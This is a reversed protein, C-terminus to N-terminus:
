DIIRGDHRLAILTDLDIQEVKSEIRFTRITYGRIYAWEAIHENLESFLTNGTYYFMFERLESTSNDVMRGVIVFYRKNRWQMHGQKYCQPDGQSGCAPCTTCSCKDAFQGCIDCPRETGAAEEIDLHSVGPPLSWGFIEM